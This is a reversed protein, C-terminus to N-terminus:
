ESMSQVSLYLTATLESQVGTTLRLKDSNQTM